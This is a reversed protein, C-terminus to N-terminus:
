PVESICMCISMYSVSMSFLFISCMFLFFTNVIDVPRYENGDIDIPYVYSREIM